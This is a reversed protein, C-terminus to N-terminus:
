LAEPLPQLLAADLWGDLGASNVTRYAVGIRRPASSRRALMARVTRRGAAGQPLAHTITRGRSGKRGYTVSVVLDGFL